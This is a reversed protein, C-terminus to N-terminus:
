NTRWLKIEASISNAEIQAAYGDILQLMAADSASHIKFYITSHELSPAGCRSRYEPSRFYALYLDIKRLLRARSVPDDKLPTAVVLAIYAGNKTRVEVDITDLRPIPHDRDERSGADEDSSM